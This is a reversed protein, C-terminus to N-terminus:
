RPGSDALREGNAGTRRVEVALDKRPRYGSEAWPKRWIEIKPAFQQDGANIHGLNSGNRPKRRADSEYVV